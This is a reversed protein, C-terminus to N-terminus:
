YQDVLRSLRSKDGLIEKARDQGIEGTINRKTGMRAGLAGGAAGAIGMAIPMGRLRSHKPTMGRSLLGGFFGGIGGSLASDITRHKVIADGHEKDGSAILGLSDKIRKEKEKTPATADIRDGLGMFTHGSIANEALGKDRLDSWFGAIKLLKQGAM